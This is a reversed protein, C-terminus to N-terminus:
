NNSMSRKETENMMLQEKMKSANPHQMIFYAIMVASLISFLADSTLFYAVISLLVPAELVACKIIFATRYANMKLSLDDHSQISNIKYKFLIQSATVSAIFLLPVIVQFFDKMSEGLNFNVTYSLYISFGLFILLSIVIAVHIIKLTRINIVVTNTPTEM